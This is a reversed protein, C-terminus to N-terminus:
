RSHRNEEAYAEARRRADLEDRYNQVENKDRVYSEEDCFLEREAPAIEQRLQEITDRQVHTATVWLQGTGRLENHEQMVQEHLARQTAAEFELGNTHDSIAQTHARCEEIEEQLNKNAVKIADMEDYHKNWIETAEESEEELLAQQARAARAEKRRSDSGTGRTKQFTQGRM